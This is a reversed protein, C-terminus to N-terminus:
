VAADGREGTRVRVVEDVPLITITGDGDRGTRAARAIVSAVQTAKDDDTIIEVKVKPSSDQPGTATRYLDDRPGQLGCGKVESVTLGAADIAGLGAKVDDLKFPKIVAEIKKM